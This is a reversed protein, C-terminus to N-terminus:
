KICLRYQIIFLFLVIIQGLFFLLIDKALIVIIEYNLLFTYYIIDNIYM